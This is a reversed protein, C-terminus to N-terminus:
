HPLRALIALVVDFLSRVILPLVVLKYPEFEDLLVALVLKVVSYELPLVTAGIPTPYPLALTAPNKAAPDSVPPLMMALIVAVPLM